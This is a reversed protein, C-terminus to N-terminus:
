YHQAVLFFFLLSEATQYSATKPPTSDKVKSGIERKVGFSGYSVLSIGMAEEGEAEL